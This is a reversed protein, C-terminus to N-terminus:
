MVAERVVSRSFLVFGFVIASKWEQVSVASIHFSM